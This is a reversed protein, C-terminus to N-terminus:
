RREEEIGQLLYSGKFVGVLALMTLFLYNIGTCIHHSRFNISNKDSCTLLINNDNNFDKRDM